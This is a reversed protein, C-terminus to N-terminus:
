RRGGSLHRCVGDTQPPPFGTASGCGPANSNSITDGVRCEAVTKLGTAVYGVDGPLLEKVPKMTPSFIGIEVPRVDAFSSMMRLVDGSQIQGEVVRIYAVVGKYSDYHLDFILARLPLDVDGTPHPVNRVVAELVKDVNLGEKASIAIISDPDVGLLAHLDNAVEETRASPLDIKNIVPVITLDAELALYLNALTQAEIGQTADVVLIAGECALLARSVEYGFDVHGPTDILNLEYEIGDQAAYKM